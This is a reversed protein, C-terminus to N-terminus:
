IFLNRFYHEIKVAALELLTGYQENLYLQYLAPNESKFIWQKFKFDKSEIKKDETDFITCELIMNIRFGYNLVDPSLLKELEELRKIKISLKYANNRTTSLNYGTREFNSWFIEYVLPSLNDFVLPNKPMDIFLPMKPAFKEEALRSEQKSCNCLNLALFLTIFLLKIIQM